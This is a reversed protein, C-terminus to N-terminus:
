AAGGIVDLAKARRMQARVTCGDAVGQLGEATALLVADVDVPASM